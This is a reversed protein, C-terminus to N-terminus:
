GPAPCYKCEHHINADGKDRRYVVEQHTYDKVGFLEIGNELKAPRVNIIDYSSYGRGVSLQERLEKANIPLRDKWKEEAAKVELAKLEDNLHHVVRQRENREQYTDRTANRQKEHAATLKKQFADIDPQFIAEIDKIKKDLESVEGRVNELEEMKLEIATM